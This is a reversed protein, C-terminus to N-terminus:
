ARVVDGEPILDEVRPASRNRVLALAALGALLYLVAQVNLIPMVGLRDGLLGAALMGAASSGDYVAGFIGFVRGRVRDATEQQLLSILGTIMAVAPAGVVVFLVVYVPLALTFAPANWILLMLAGFSLAGAAILVGPRPARRITALMVGVALAGVAQVGRLLGIDAADGGLERAVWVVFLVVFVGQAIGGLMAIVLGTLIRHVGSTKSSNLPSSRPDPATDSRVKSAIGSILVAAVVFTFADVLVIVRLGSLVLLLGGVPGGVLRGLNQNLGVLSNASVLGDRPVLVPLWASKAPTFVTLLGAEVAIVGYLIPLDVRTHVALLPLLAVAQAVAIGVLLRRRDWRDAVVGGLPGLLVAPGLEFLFAYSTQLTSNTLQFVLIPLAVLLM